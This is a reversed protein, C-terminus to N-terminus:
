QSSTVAPALASGWPVLWTDGGLTEAGGVPTEGGELPGGESGPGGTLVPGPPCPGGVVVPQCTRSRCRPGTPGDGRCITCEHIDQGLWASGLVVRGPQRPPQDGRGPLVASSSTSMRRARTTRPSSSLRSSAPVGARAM